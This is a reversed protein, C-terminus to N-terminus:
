RLLSDSLSPTLSLNRKTKGQFNLFGDGDLDVERMIEDIEVHTLREGLNRMVSKLDDAPIYGKGERDFVRFAEHMDAVSDKMIKSMM